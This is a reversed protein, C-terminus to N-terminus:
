DLAPVGTSGVEHRNRANWIFEDVVDLNLSRESASVNKGDTLVVLFV